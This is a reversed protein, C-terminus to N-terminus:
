THGRSVCLLSVANLEGLRLPAVEADGETALHGLLARPVGGTGAAGDVDVVARQVGQLLLQDVGSGAGLLCSDWAGRHQRAARRARVRASILGPPGWQAWHWGNTGGSRCVRWM